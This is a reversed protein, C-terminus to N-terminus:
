GFIGNLFLSRKLLTRTLIARIRKGFPLRMREKRFFLMYYLQLCLCAVCNYYLIHSVVDACVVCHIAVCSYYLGHSVIADSWKAFACRLSYSAFCHLCINVILLCFAPVRVDNVHCPHRSKNRLSNGHRKFM